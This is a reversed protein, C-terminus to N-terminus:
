EDGPVLDDADGCHTCPGVITMFGCWNCIRWDVNRYAFNVDPTVAHADIPDM